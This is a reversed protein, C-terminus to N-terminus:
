TVLVPKWPGGVARGSAPDWGQVVAEYVIKKRFGHTGSPRQPGVSFRSLVRSESFFFINDVFQRNPGWHTFM